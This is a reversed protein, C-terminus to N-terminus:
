TRPAATSQRVVLRPTVKASPLPAGHDRNIQQLLSNVCAEGVQSFEQHVTTLPPLFCSSDAIDDFGVISVDDPVKRGAEHLARIVGLAMQDNASFVATLEPEAALRVGARYGSDATWDGYLVPPVSAGAAKLVAHWTEIRQRAFNSDQPGALHWVTRHGLSLLHEVALRTGEAQNTDVVPYRQHDDGAVIVVPVGPPLRLTPADLLQAQVLVIGDVAQVSLEDYAELVAQETAARVGILSISYGVNRAANSISELTRANGYASLDFSIVGIRRFQGTVLARAATNPRYGIMRMATLVKERTEPEVNTHNNAVRSVTQPSVGALRAVDAM